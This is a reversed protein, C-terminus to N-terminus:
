RRKKSEFFRPPSKEAPGLSQFKPEILKLRPFYAGSIMESAM